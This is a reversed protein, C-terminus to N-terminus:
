KHHDGVSVKGGPALTTAPGVRTTRVLVALQLEAVVTLSSLFSLAEQM